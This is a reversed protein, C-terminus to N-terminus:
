LWFWRASRSMFSGRCPKRRLRNKRPPKVNGRSRHTLLAYAGFAVAFFLGKAFLGFVLGEEPYEMLWLQLSIVISAVAAFGFCVLGSLLFWRLYAHIGQVDLGRDENGNEPSASQAGVIDDELDTRMM